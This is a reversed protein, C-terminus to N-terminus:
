WQEFQYLHLSTVNWTPGAALHLRNGAAKGIGRIYDNTGLHLDTLTLTKLEDGSWNYISVGEDHRIFIWDHVAAIGNFSRPEFSLKKSINQQGDPTFIHLSQAEWDTVAMWGSAHACASVRINQWQTDLRMIHQHDSARYLDVRWDDNGSTGYVLLDSPLVSQLFGYEGSLQQLPELESNFIHTPNEEEYRIVINGNPLVHKTSNLRVSSPLPKEWEKIYRMNLTETQLRFKILNKKANDELLVVNENM